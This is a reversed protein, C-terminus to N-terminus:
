ENENMVPISKHEVTSFIQRKINVGLLQIEPLSKLMNYCTQMYNALPCYLLAALIRIILVALMLLFIIVEPLLMKLEKQICFRGTKKPM